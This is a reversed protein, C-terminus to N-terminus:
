ERREEGPSTAGLGFVALSSQSAVYVRGNAVVPVTSPNHAADSWTGAAGTFVQQL